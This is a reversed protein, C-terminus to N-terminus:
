PFFGVIEGMVLDPGQIVDVNGDNDYDLALLIEEADAISFMEGHTGKTVSISDFIAVYPPAEQSSPRVIGITVFGINYAIFQIKYDLDPPLFFLIEGDELKKVQAGPIESVGSSTVQRGYTDYIVVDVPCQFAVLAKENDSGILQSAWESPLLKAKWVGIVKNGDYIFTKNDADYLAYKFVKSLEQASYIIENEYVFIYHIEHLKVIKYAVVAHKQEGSIILIVPENRRLWKEVEEYWDDATTWPWWDFDALKNLFRDQHQEIKKRAQEKILSYTNLAGHPRELKGLFYLISTESMGFCHGEHEEDSWNTFSYSDVALDFNTAIVEGFAFEFEVIGQTGNSAITLQYRRM